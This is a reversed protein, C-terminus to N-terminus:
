SPWIQNSEPYQAAANRFNPKHCYYILTISLSHLTRLLIGKDELELLICEDYVGSHIASRLLTNFSAHRKEKTCVSLSKMKDHRMLKCKLSDLFRRKSWEGDSLLRNSLLKIHLHAERSAEEDVDPLDTM